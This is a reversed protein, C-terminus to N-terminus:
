DILVPHKLDFVRVNVSQINNTEPFDNRLIDAILKCFQEALVNGVILFDKILDNFMSGKCSSFDQNGISVQSSGLTVIQYVSKFRLKSACSRKLELACYLANRDIVFERNSLYVLKIVIHIFQLVNDIYVAFQFTFVTGYGDTIGAQLVVGPKRTQIFGSGGGNLVAFFQREDTGLSVTCAREKVHSLINNLSDTFSSFQNEATESELVTRGVRTLSRLHVKGVSRFQLNSRTFVLNEVMSRVAALGSNVPSCRKIRVTCRETATCRKFVVTSRSKSSQCSM